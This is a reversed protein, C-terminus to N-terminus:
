ATRGRAADDRGTRARYKDRCETSCFYVRQRGDSLTVARDPLVFTGCVPDRAMAVAQAPPPPEATTVRTAGAVIGGLFRWVARMALLIFVFELVRALM